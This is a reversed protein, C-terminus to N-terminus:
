TTPTELPFLERVGVGLAEALPWLHSIGVDREGREIFGVVARHLGADHALREQSLGRQVRLVRLHEGFARVQATSRSRRGLDM